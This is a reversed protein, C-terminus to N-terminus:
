VWITSVKLVSDTGGWSWIVYIDEWFVDQIQAGAVDQLATITVYRPKDWETVIPPTRAM